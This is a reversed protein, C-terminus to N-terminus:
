AANASRVQSVTETPPFAAELRAQLARADESAIPRWTVQLARGFEAPAALEQYIPRVVCQRAPPWLSAILATLRLPLANRNLTGENPEDVAPVLRREHKPASPPAARLALAAVAIDIVRM